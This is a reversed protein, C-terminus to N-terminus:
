RDILRGTDPEFTLPNSDAHDLVALSTIALVEMSSLDEGYSWCLAPGYAIELDFSAECRNPGADPASPHM